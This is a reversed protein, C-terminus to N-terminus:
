NLVWIDIRQFNPMQLNCNALCTGNEFLIDAHGTIQEKSSVKSSKIRM